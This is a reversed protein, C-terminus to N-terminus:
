LYSYRNGLLTINDLKNNYIVNAIHELSTFREEDLRILKYNNKKCWECLLKDKYQKRELQGHIDKFHWIGDYEFCIKLKDSYMDRSLYVGDELKINGSSTWGDEPYTTKFFNLIEKEPKSTFYLSKSYDVNKYAGELWKSKVTKSRKQKSEVSHIRGTNNYTTSCTPSCFKNYNSYFEVGCLKCRKLKKSSPNQNCYKRHRTISNNSYRKGCHECNVKVIPKHKWRIHNSYSKNNLFM